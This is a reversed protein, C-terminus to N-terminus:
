KVVVVFAYGHAHLATSIAVVIPTVAALRVQVGDLVTSGTSDVALGM